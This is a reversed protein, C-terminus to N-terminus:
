GLAANGLFSVEMLQARIEERAQGREAEKRDRAAQSNWACLKSTLSWPSM